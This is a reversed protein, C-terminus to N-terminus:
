RVARKKATSGVTIYSNFDGGTTSPLTAAGSVPDVSWFSNRNFDNWKQVYIQRTASDFGVPVGGPRHLVMRSTRAAADIAFLDGALFSEGALPTAVYLTGTSADVFASMVETRMLLAPALTALDVSWVEASDERLLFARGRAPDSILMSFRGDLALVKTAAGTTSDLQVLENGGRLGFLRSTQADWACCSSLTTLDIATPQLSQDHLDAVYLKPDYSDGLLFLRRTSPDFAGVRMAHPLRLVQLDPAPSVRVIEGPSRESVFSSVRYVTDASAALPLAAVLLLSLLRM